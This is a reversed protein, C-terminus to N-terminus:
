RGQAHRVPRVLRNMWLGVTPQQGSLTLGNTLHSILEFRTLSAAPKWRSWSISPTAPARAHAKFGSWRRQGLTPSSPTPHRSWTSHLAGEIIPRQADFLPRWITGDSVATSVRFKGSVGKVFTLKQASNALEVTTANTYLTLGGMPAMPQVVFRVESLGFLAGGYNNLLRLRVYRVNAAPTSFTQSPEAAGGGGQAFTNTGLVTWAMNDVSASIEVNRAGFTTCCSENYNWIRTTQLNYNGGLSLVLVPSTDGTDSVWMNADPASGHTSDSEGLVGSGGVTLGSGNVLYAARRNCCYSLESSVSQIVPTVLAQGRAHPPAWGAM